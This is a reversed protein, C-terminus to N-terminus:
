RFEPSIIHFLTTLQNRWLSNGLQRGPQFFDSPGSNVFYLDMLGDQDYDFAALGAGMTEPLYHTLSKGNDHVWHIGSKGSPWREFSLNGSFLFVSSLSGSLLCFAGCSFARRIM